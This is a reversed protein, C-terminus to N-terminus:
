NKEFNHSPKVGQRLNAKLVCSIATSTTTALSPLSHVIMVISLRPQRTYGHRGALWLHGDLSWRSIWQNDWLKRNIFFCNCEVANLTFSSQHRSAFSGHKTKLHCLQSVLSGPKSKILSACNRVEHIMHLFFAHWSHLKNTYTPTYILSLFCAICRTYCLSDDLSSVGM